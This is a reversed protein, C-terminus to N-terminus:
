IIRAQKQHKRWKDIMRSVIELSLLRVELAWHAPSDGKFRQEGYSHDRVVWRFDHMQLHLFPQEEEEQARFWNRAVNAFTQDRAAETKMPLDQPSPPPLDRPGHIKWIVLLSPGALHDRVYDLLEVLKRPKTKKCVDLRAVEWMGVSLILVSYERRILDRHTQLHKLISNYCHAQAYDLKGIPEENLAFASWDDTLKGRYTANCSERTGPVQGLDRFLSKFGL